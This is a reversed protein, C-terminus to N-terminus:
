CARPILMPVALRLEEVAELMELYGNAMDLRRLQEMASDLRTVADDSTESQTVILLKNDIDRQQKQFSQAKRKVAANASQYADEADRLESKSDQLQKQLLDQQTRINTLLSDLSEFDAYTQLKDNLYDELRADQSAHGAQVQQM